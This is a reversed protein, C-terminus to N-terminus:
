RATPLTPPTSREAQFDPERLLDAGDGQRRRGAPHRLDLHLQWLGGAHQRRRKLRRAPLASSRAQPLADRMHRALGDILDYQSRHAEDAIVVINAAQEAGMTMGKEPLFKQITTFIVGGSAVALLERLHERDRAQV